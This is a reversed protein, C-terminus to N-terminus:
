VLFPQLHFQLGCWVCRISGAQLLSSVEHMSEDETLHQCSLRISAQLMNRILDPAQTSKDAKSGSAM